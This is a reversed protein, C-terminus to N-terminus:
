AAEKVEEESFQSYIKDNIREIQTKITPDLMVIEENKQPPVGKPALEATVFDAIKILIPYFEQRVQELIELTEEKTPPKKKNSYNSWLTWGSVALL